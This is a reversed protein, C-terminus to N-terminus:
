SDDEGKMVRWPEEDAQDEVAPYAEDDSFTGRTVPLKNLKRRSVAAPKRVKRAFMAELDDPDEDVLDKVEAYAKDSLDDLQAPLEELKQRKEDRQEVNSKLKNATPMRDFRDQARYESKLREIDEELKKIGNPTAAMSKLAARFRIRNIADENLGTKGPGKQILKSIYSDLSESTIRWFKNIRFGKLEGDRLLRKVHSESLGLMEAVEEPTLVQLDRRVTNSKDM